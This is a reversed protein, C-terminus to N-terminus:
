GPWEWRWCHGVQVAREVVGSGWGGAGAGLARAQPKLFWRPEYAATPIAALDFPGLHEGIEKFVSCYGTDGAFWFRLKSGLVAWGGWLTERRGSNPGTLGRHTAHQAPTLVVRVAGGGPAAHEREEWWDLEEVNHIGERVFWPRLGLPVYWRLGPGYRRHLAHVSALDLHDARMRATRPHSTPTSTTAM